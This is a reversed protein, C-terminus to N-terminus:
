SLTLKLRSLDQESEMTGKCHDDEFRHFRHISAGQDKGDVGTRRELWLAKTLSPPDDQWYEYLALAAYVVARKKTRRSM